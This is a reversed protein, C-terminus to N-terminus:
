IDLFSHHEKDKMLCKNCLRKDCQSCYLTTMLCVTNKEEDDCTFFACNKDSTRSQHENKRYCEPCFKNPCKSYFCRKLCQECYKQLNCLNCKPSCKLCIYSNCEENKCKSICIDKCYYELCTKCRIKEKENAKCKQCSTDRNNSNNLINNFVESENNLSIYDLLLNQNQNTIENKYNNIKEPILQSKSKYLNILEHKKNFLSKEEEILASIDNDSKYYEETMIEPKNLLETLEILDKKKEVIEKFLMDIESQINEIENMYILSFIKIRNEHILNIKDKYKELTEDMEQTSVEKQNKELCNNLHKSYLDSNNFVENCISCKKNTNDQNIENKIINDFSLSDLEQINFAIEEFYEDLGGLVYNEGKIDNILHPNSSQNVEDDNNKEKFKEKCKCSEIHEYLKSIPFSPVGCNYKCNILLVSMLEAEHRLLKISNTHKCICGDCYNCKCILCYKPTSLLRNCINCTIYPIYREVKVFDSESLLQNIKLTLSTM